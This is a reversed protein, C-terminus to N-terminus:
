QLRRLVRVQVRLTPELALQVSALPAMGFLGSAAEFWFPAVLKATATTVHRGQMQFTQREAFVFSHKFLLADGLPVASAGGHGIQM